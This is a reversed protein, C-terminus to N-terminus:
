SPPIEDDNKRRRRRRKNSPELLSISAESPRKRASPEDFSGFLDQQISEAVTSSHFPRTPPDHRRRLRRPLKAWRM